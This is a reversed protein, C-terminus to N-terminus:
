VRGGSQRGRSQEAATFAGEQKWRDNGSKMMSELYIPNSKRKRQMTFVLSIQVFLHRM